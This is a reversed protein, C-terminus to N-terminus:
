RRLRDKKLHTPAPAPYPQREALFSKKKVYSIVFTYCAEFLSKNIKKKKKKAINKLVLSYRLSTKLTMFIQDFNTFAM